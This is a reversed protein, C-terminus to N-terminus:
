VFRFVPRDAEAVAFAVQPFRQALRDRLPELVLRETEYHGADILTVGMRNADLAHNHRFEGSIYVDAPSSLVADVAFAGGGCCVAAIKLPRKGEAVRVCDLKAGTKVAEALASISQLAPPIEALAVCDDTGPCLGVKKLGIARIFTENVGDAAVDLNTHCALLSVGHRAALYACDEKRLRRIPNYITPHHSIILEAGVKAAEHIIDPTVDVALLARTVTIDGSGVLIGCNDTGKANAFPAVEDFWNYIDALTIM